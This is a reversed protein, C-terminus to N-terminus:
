EGSSKPNASAITYSLGARTFVDIQTITEIDECGDSCILLIKISEM